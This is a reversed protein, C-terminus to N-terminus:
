RKDQVSNAIVDAFRKQVDEEFFPDDLDHPRQGAPDHLVVDPAAVERDPHKQGTAASWFREISQLMTGM